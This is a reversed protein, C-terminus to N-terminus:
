GEGVSLWLRTGMRWRREESLLSEVCVRLNDAEPAMGFENEVELCACPSLCPWSYPCAGIIVCWWEWECLICRHMAVGVGRGIWCGSGKPGVAVDGFQFTDVHTEGCVKGMEGEGRVVWGM